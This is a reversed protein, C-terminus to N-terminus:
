EEGAWIPIIYVTFSGMIVGVFDGHPVEIESVNDDLEDVVKEDSFDEKIYPHLQYSSLGESFVNKSLKKKLKM